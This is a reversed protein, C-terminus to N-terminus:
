KGIKTAKCKVHIVGYAVTRSREVARLTHIGGDHHVIGILAGSEIVGLREIQLTCHDGAVSLIAVDRGVRGVVILPGDTKTGDIKRMEMLLAIGVGAVILLCIWDLATLEYTM